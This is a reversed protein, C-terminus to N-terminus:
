LDFIHTYYTLWLNVTFATSSLIPDKNGWGCALAERKIGIADHVQEKGSARTRYASAIRRENKSNLSGYRV